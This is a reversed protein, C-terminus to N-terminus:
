QGGSVISDQKYELWHFYWKVQLYESYTLFYKMVMLKNIAIQDKTFLFVFKTVLHSILNMLAFQHSKPIAIFAIESVNLFKSLM